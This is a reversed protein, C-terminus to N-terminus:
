LFWGAGAKREIDLADTLEADSAVFTYGSNPRSRKLPSRVPIVVHVSLSPPPSSNFVPEIRVSEAVLSLARRAAEEASTTRVFRTTAFGICGEPPIDMGTGTVIVRFRPM